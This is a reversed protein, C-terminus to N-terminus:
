ARRWERGRGERVTRQYGRWPPWYSRWQRGTQTGYATARPSAETQRHTSLRRVGRLIRREAPPSKPSEAHDM